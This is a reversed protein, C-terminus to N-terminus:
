TLHQMVSASLTRKTLSSWLSLIIHLNLKEGNIYIDTIVLNSTYTDRRM